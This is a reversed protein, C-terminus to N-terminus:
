SHPANKSFKELQIEHSGVLSFVTRSIPDHSLPTEPFNKWVFNM